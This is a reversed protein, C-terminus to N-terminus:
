LSLFRFKLPHSAILPLLPALIHVTPTTKPRPLTNDHPHTRAHAHTHNLTTFPPSPAIADGLMMNRHQSGATTSSDNVSIHISHFWTNSIM